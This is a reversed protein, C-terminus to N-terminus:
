SRGGEIMAYVALLEMAFRRRGFRAEMAARAARGLRERLDADGALREIARALGAVDGPTHGLATVGEDFFELAGGAASVVVARGCAMAEVITLGFPEPRTSAHVVVDLMRYVDAPDEQFPIFGVRDALGLGNALERLGARTVESGVTAYIPGGVVYGRAGPAMGAIARLFVEHGKWHAYTAVLGVRVRDGADSALGALRDLGRGDRPAPSFRELDVGNRVVSVPVEPAVSALDRSVADSVAIARTVRRMVRRVLYSALPRGSVFDHVHWLLAVDKSIARTLVFLAKFGHAHVLTPRLEGIARQITRAYNKAARLRLSMAYWARLRGWGTAQDLRSDGASALRAPMPVVRVSIGLAELAARLPGDAFLLASVRAKPWAAKVARAGECLM